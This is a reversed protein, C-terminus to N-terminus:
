PQARHVASALLQDFPSTTARITMTSVRTYRATTQLSRHGLLAQIIRIDTGAELLHTAFSHRLTRMMVPKSLGSDDSVRRCARQISKYSIPQGAINGEFLWESPKALKWYTRLITLLAPSLMVYRDKRGKGQEVRIVMRKSDIDCVRLRAVESVRLGAAYAIMLMARHKINKISEFFQLMESISLVLPLKQQRRPFPIHEIAWEKGLTIRYLFRLAAVSQIFSSWSVQKDQVLFIQYARIEAPGLLEPSKGFHRAFRSVHDLYIYHTHPSLNRVQMDEIMRQRLPTM